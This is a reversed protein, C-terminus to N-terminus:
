SPGKTANDRLKAKIRRLLEAEDPINRLDIDLDKLADIAVRLITNKTIRERRHHRDRHTMITRVLKELFFLQDERLRVSLQIEFTQFKPVKSTEVKSLQTTRM